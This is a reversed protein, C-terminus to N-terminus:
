RAARPPPPEEPDTSPGPQEAAPEPEVVEEEEELGGEDRCLCMMAIQIETECPVLKSPPDTNYQRLSRHSQAFSSHCGMPAFGM